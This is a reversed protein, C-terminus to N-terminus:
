NFFDAVKITSHEILTNIGLFYYLSDNESKEDKLIIILSNVLEDKRIKDKESEIKNILNFVKLKM